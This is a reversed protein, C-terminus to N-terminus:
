AQDRGDILPAWDARLSWPTEYSPADRHRDLGLTLVLTAGAPVDVVATRADVSREGRGEHITTIRHEGFVGGQVVVSLDEAATNVLTLRCGAPTLEDVLAAVDRPLGARRTAPDFYRVTGHQLGGHPLHAPAGWMLQV